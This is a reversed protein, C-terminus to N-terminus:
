DILQARRLTEPLSKDILEVIISKFKAIDAANHSAPVMSNDIKRCPGHVGPCEGVFGLVSGLSQDLPSAGAYKIETFQQADVVTVSYLAHVVSDSGILSGETLVGSGALYQNTSGFQSVAPRIIIYADVGAPTVSSRIVNTLSNGQLADMLPNGSGSSSAIAARQFSVPRVEYRRGLLARVKNTVFEDIGWSVSVTALENNFVTPGIKRVDFKDGVASIIGVRKVGQMGEASAGGLGGWGVLLLACPVMVWHVWAVARSRAVLWEVNM